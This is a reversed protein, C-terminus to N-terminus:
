EESEEGIWENVKEPNNAVWNAAAEEPATGNEIDMM